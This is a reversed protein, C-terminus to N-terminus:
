LFEDVAKLRKKWNSSASFQIPLCIYIYNLLYLIIVSTIKVVLSYYHLLFNLFSFIFFYVVYIFIFIGVRQKCGNCRLVNWFINKRKELFIKKRLKKKILKVKTCLSFNKLIYVNNVKNCVSTRRIICFWIM